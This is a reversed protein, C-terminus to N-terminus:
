RVNICKLDMETLCDRHPTVFYVKISIPIIGQYDRNGWNKQHVAKLRNSLIAVYIVCTVNVIATLYNCEKLIDGGAFKLMMVCHTM